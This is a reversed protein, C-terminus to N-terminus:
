VSFLNECSRSPKSRLRSLVKHRSRSVLCSMSDDMCETIGSSKRHKTEEELQKKESLRIQRLIGVLLDDVKHSLLASVEIYKCGYMKSASRGESYYFFSSHIIFVSCTGICDAETYYLRSISPGIISTIHNRDLLSNRFKSCSADRASTWTKLSTFFIPKTSVM